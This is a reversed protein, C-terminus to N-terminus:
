ICIIIFYSMLTHMNDLAKFPMNVFSHLYITCKQFQPPLRQISTQPHSTRHPPTTHLLM